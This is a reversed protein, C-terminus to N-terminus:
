TTLFAVGIVEDLLVIDPRTATSIAFALRLMMGSSYTRVPLQLFDGLESFEGIEPTMARAETMTM